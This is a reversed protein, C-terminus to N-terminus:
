GDADVSGTNISRLVLIGPVTSLFAHQTKKKMHTKSILLHDPPRSPMYMYHPPQPHCVCVHSVAVDDRESSVNLAQRPRSAGGRQWARGRAKSRASIRGEQTKGRDVGHRSGRPTWSDIKTQSELGVRRGDAVSNLHGSTPSVDCSWQAARATGNAKEGILESVSCM